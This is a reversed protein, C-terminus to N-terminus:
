PTVLWLFAAGLEAVLEETACAESGFRGSLDRDCRHPLARWHTLEHLLTSYYAEAAGTTASGTFIERPPMHIEDLKLIFCAQHGGHIVKAGTRATFGEVDTM